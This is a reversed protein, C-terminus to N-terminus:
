PQGRDRYRRHRERQEAKLYQWGMLTHVLGIGDASFLNHVVWAALWTLLFGGWLWALAAVSLVPVQWGVIGLILSGVGVGLALPVSAIQFGRARDVHSGSVEARTQAAPPLAEAPLAPEYRVIEGRAEGPAYPAVFNAARDYGQVQVVEGTATRRKHDKVRM